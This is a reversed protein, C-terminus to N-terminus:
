SSAVVRPMLYKWIGNAITTVTNMGYTEGPDSATMITALYFRGQYQVFGTSNVQWGTPIEKYWGDKLGVTAKAPSGWGLGFRQGGIVDEMLDMEYDRSATDLIRNPLAIVKLLQLQDLPTTSIDGWSWSPVTYKFGILTNFEDIEETGGIQAWLKTAAADNSAEIMSRTLSEQKATLPKDRAQSEYLLDALIDIKVISATRDHYGNHYTYTAGTDVDYIAATVLGSRNKLYTALARDTFPNDPNHTPVPTTTTTTTTSTSTTTTGPITTTTTPLTPTPGGNASGAPAGLGIVLMAVAAMSAVSM